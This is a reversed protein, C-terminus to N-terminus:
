LHPFQSGSCKLLKSLTVYGTLSLALIQVCGPSIGGNTRKAM